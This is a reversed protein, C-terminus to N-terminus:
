PRPFALRAPRRAIAAHGGRQADRPLLTATTDRPQIDLRAGDVRRRADVEDAFAQGDRVEVPADM